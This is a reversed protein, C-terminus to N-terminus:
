SFFALYYGELFVDVFRSFFAVCGKCHIKHSLRNNAFTGTPGPRGLGAWIKPPALDFALVVLSSGRIKKELNLFEKRDLQLFILIKRAGSRHNIMM